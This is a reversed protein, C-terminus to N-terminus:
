ACQKFKGNFLQSLTVKPLNTSSLSRGGAVVVFGNEDILTAELTFFNQPGSTLEPEGVLGTAYNSNQSKYTSLGQIFTKKELNFTGTGYTILVRAKGKQDDCVTYSETKGIQFKSNLTGPVCIAVSGCGTSPSSLYTLLSPNLNNTLISSYALGKSLLAFVDSNKLEGGRKLDTDEFAYKVEPTYDSDKNWLVTPEFAIGFANSIYNYTTSSGDSSSGYLLTVARQSPTAVSIVDSNVPLNIVAKYLISDIGYERYMEGFVPIESPNALLSLDIEKGGLTCLSASCTLDKASSYFRALANSIILPDKKLVEKYEDSSMPQFSLKATFNNMNVIYDQNPVNLLSWKDTLVYVEKTPKDYGSGKFLPNDSDLKAPATNLPIPKESDKKSQTTFYLALLALITLVLVLINLPNRKKGSKITYNKRAM